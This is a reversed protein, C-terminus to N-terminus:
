LRYIKLKFITDNISQEEDAISDSRSSDFKSIESRCTKSVMANHENLVKEFNMSDKVLDYQVLVDDTAELGAKKRLKQIRNIIERALGETKLEDYVNTDLIILVDNDTRTERGSQIASEPLDRIVNLDGMVLDIGDVTLKGTAMYTKVDDSSVKPLGVKVKKADGKLKKGLVPWDAVAKYEVNYAEEDDTIIVDRVNLEEIVYAKLAEVDKLYDKDSHLIVLTKLPTKLSIMKKERVNRGLEIVSQMRAVAKEIAEDFLEERVVPYSLFHVSRGDEGFRALVEDPIYAKLQLYISDALFPTFPAMARVFTFLAEFLSNLAKVCDEVGNEGKLRRRNFRIYWNTLQDIFNLLKPVVTYLQYQGMEEHIEQVLSQMSALIWKDMVNEGTLDPNYKFDINSTKKLLAIQGDLFKFSNYWPLLVKSVVEKVGEEKFKLSEAKLVPSNILYLRLADAGYKELVINPDPYNKLSKSMKRGDSALVIGSVIVNQYPVQGFLHTGLVSLTYFWGRTQDLGESIFNAPNRQKFLDKNEFPYHQSAYPMSGSEFWCDFVEEIRKLDGKGQKSPITINDITDRHLDTIGKVGSLEELEQVSGVCVIEKYDESVWLPIPTGWYRNRSVNWDRANAIWNTFRKEKISNPVWHSQQVSELLQPVINKVRIFWAPVTRYLLPTDSRWCFPYSHRIQTAYLMNGTETLHKIILKDADKVYVGAYDSVEPTFKGLDDIPNPFSSDEDIIHNSLCVNYDEEGFAPANHVIGTGSDASVYNDSIVRFATEKFEEAFYPFLPKYKLGVLDKGQIKEVVKYKADKPKKYLSKILAELLIYYCDKTEDYIKVYEFEANVCLAMNSPLTWPTTTWAVLKTKEQGIVDFGITVAPDNVDKYNQQAEFNSLPTTLGTSYPMVRHGRYVQDKEFLEKFAWWESEMFSPYMTKYDNDFDIWRGLRGITKRWDAAYTMVIARCEDNYNKLGFKFVDDKGKINLKKDIIHEIPVGHTDWGFRREVHHGTMTAYRPVIDKVTSALIHGYHPTGTAFPPGDYFSFEPKGETLKLSTHFADIEDWLALVKEEEKSFSFHSSSESM